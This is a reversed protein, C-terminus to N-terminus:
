RPWDHTQGPQDLGQDIGSDYIPVVNTHHLGAALRAERRFRRLGGENVSLVRPLVKVAVMRELPLQEAEYVVGMGGRGIERGVQYDGLRVGPQCPGVSADVDADPVPRLASRGCHMLSLLTELEHSEDPFASLVEAPDPERGANIDDQFKSVAAAVEVSDARRGESEFPDLRGVQPRKPRVM